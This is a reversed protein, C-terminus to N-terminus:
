HLGHELGNALEHVIQRAEDTSCKCNKLHSGIRYWQERPGYGGVYTETAIRAVEIFFQAQENDSLGAFFQAATEISLEIEVTQRVTYTRSM